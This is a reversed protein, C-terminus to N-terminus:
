MLEVVERIRTHPIPFAIIYDRGTKGDDYLYAWNGDIEFRGTKQHTYGMSNTYTISVQKHNFCVAQSASFVNEVKM